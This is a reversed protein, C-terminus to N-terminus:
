IRRSWSHRSVLALLPFIELRGLLMNATLVLKPLDGFAAYNAMPGVVGFGPGINNICAFVASFNSELPFGDLSIFIFSAFVIFWYAALYASVGQQVEDEVVKGNVHVLQVSRPRLTRRINCRLVKAMIVLRIVKVGGGTSGACAGTLMLCLLIAKSFAPWLDFNM